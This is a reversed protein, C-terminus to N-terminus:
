VNIQNLHCIDNNSFFYEICKSSSSGSKPSIKFRIAASFGWINWLSLQSHFLDARWPCSGRDESNRSQRGSSLFVVVDPVLCILAVFLFGFWLFLYIETNKADFNDIDINLLRAQKFCIITYNINFQFLGNKIKNKM